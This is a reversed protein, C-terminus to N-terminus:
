LLNSNPLNRSKASMVQQGEVLQLNTQKNFRALPDFGGRACRIGLSDYAKLSSGLGTDAGVGLVCDSMHMLFSVGLPADCVSRVNWKALAGGNSPSRHDETAVPEKKRLTASPGMQQMNCRMSLGETTHKM